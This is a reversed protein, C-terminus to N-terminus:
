ETDETDLEALNERSLELVLEYLAIDPELMARRDDREISRARKWLIYETTKEQEESLPM